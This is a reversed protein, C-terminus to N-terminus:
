PTSLLTVGVGAVNVTTSESGGPRLKTDAMPVPHTHEITPCSRVHVPPPGSSRPSRAWISTTVVTRAVAPVSTRLTAETDATPGSSDRALLVSSALTSTLRDIVVVTVVVVVVVGGGDATTDTGVSVGVATTMPRVVENGDVPASMPPRSRM